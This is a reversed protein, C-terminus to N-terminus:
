MDISSRASPVKRSNLSSLLPSSITRWSNNTVGSGAEPATRSKRLLDRAYSVSYTVTMLTRSAGPCSSSSLRVLRAASPSTAGGSHLVSSDSVLLSSAHSRRASVSHCPESPASRSLATSQACSSQPVSEGVLSDSSSRSSQLDRWRIVSRIGTEGGAVWSSDESSSSESSSGLM